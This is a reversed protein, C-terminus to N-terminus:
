TPCTFRPASTWAGWTSTGSLKMRVKAVYVHGPTCSESEFTGYIEQQEPGGLAAYPDPYISIIHDVADINIDVQANLYEGAGHNNTTNAWSDWRGRSGSAYSVCYNYYISVSPVKVTAGCGGAASAPAVGLSVFPLSCVAAIIASRRKFM